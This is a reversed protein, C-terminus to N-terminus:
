GYGGGWGSREAKEKLRKRQHRIHRRRASRSGSSFLRDSRRPYHGVPLTLDEQFPSNELAERKSVKSNTNLNLHREYDKALRDIANRLLPSSSFYKQFTMDDPSLDNRQKEDKSLKRQRLLRQFSEAISRQRESLVGSFTPEVTITDESRGHSLDSIVDFLNNYDPTFGYPTKGFKGFCRTFNVGKQNTIPPPAGPTVWWIQWHYNLRQIKYWGNCNLMLRM